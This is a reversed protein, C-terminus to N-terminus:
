SWIKSCDEGKIEEQYNEQWQNKMMVQEFRSHVSIMYNVSVTGKRKNGEEQDQRQKIIEQFKTLKRIEGRKRTWERTWSEM